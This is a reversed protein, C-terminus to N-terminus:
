YELPIEAPKEEDPSAPRPAFVPVDPELAAPAPEPEAAPVPGAAREAAPEPPPMDPPLAPSAAAVRPAPSAAPAVPRPPPEPARLRACRSSGDPGPPAASWTLEDLRGAAAYAPSEAGSPPRSGPSDPAALAILDARTGALDDALRLGGELRFAGAAGQAPRHEEPGAPRARLETICAVGDIVRARGDVRGLPVPPRSEIACAECAVEVEGRASSLTGGPLTLRMRISPDGDITSGGALRGLRLETAVLDVDVGGDAEAVHGTLRGRAGRADVTTDIRGDLLASLSLAVDIRDFTLQLPPDARTALHVGRLAFRGPLWGRELRDVRVGYRASLQAAVRDVLRPYPFAVQVAIIFTCLALAALGAWRLLRTRTPARYRQARPLLMM